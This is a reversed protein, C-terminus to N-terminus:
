GGFFVKADECFWFESGKRASSDEGLHSSDDYQEFPDGRKDDLDSEGKSIFVSIVWIEECQVDRSWGDWGEDSVDNLPLLSHCKLKCEVREAGRFFPM